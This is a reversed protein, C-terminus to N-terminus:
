ENTEETNSVYEYMVIQSAGYIENRYATAAGIKEKLHTRKDVECIIIAEDNLLGSDIIKEIQKEIEQKAYPPDLFLLDFKKNGKLLDIARNADNRYVDFKGPEKTVNINEKITKIALPDQDILVAKDMGRSVAEIALGGSGAFLDLCAGGDFYPGIINFISEKVKDTTPRTNNGPVAKLKRGGYEGTIIRMKM